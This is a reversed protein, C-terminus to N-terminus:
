SPESLNSAELLNKGTQETAFWSHMQMHEPWIPPRDDKALFCRDLVSEAGRNNHIDQLEEGLPDDVFRGDELHWLWAAFGHRIAPADSGREAHWAVTELWRQPIKQTGDM